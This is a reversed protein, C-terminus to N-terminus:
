NLLILSSLAKIFLSNHTILIYKCLILLFFIIVCRYYLSSIPAKSNIYFNYIKQKIFLFTYYKPTPLM